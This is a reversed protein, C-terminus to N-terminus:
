AAREAGGPRAGTSPQPVLLAHTLVDSRVDVPEVGFQEYAVGLLAYAVWAPASGLAEYERVTEAEVSLLTALREVSLQYDARFAVVVSAPTRPAPGRSASRTADGPM